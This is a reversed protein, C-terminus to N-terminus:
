ETVVWVVAEYPSLLGVTLEKWSHRLVSAQGGPNMLGYRLADGLSIGDDDHVLDNM